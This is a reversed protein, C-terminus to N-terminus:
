TAEAIHTRKPFARKIFPPFTAFSPCRTLSALGIEHALKKNHTTNLYQTKSNSSVVNALYEKPSTIAETNKPIKPIRRMKFVSKLAKGDTLLWAEMEKIPILVITATGETCALKSELDSRLESEDYRDLDHIVVIVNCGKDKLNKAWASCKRRVKGCGHGVFKSVSFANEKVIKATIASIVDVDNNEEAIVGLKLSKARSTTRKKSSAAM